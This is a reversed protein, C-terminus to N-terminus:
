DWGSQKKKLFPLVATSTSSGFFESDSLPSFNLLTSILRFLAGFLSFPLLVSRGESILLPFAKNENLFTLGAPGHSKAAPAQQFLGPLAFRFEEISPLDEPLALETTTTRESKKPQVVVELGLIIM